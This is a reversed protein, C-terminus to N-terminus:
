QVRASGLQVNGMKGTVLGKVTVRQGKSLGAVTGQEGESFTCQVGDLFGEGGVVIYAQDMIDKGIDQITGTIVVVKGKYKSDAAVENKDYAGYLDNASLTFSPTKSQVDETESDTNGSGITLLGLVVLGAACCLHKLTNRKM